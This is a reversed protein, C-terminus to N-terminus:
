MAPFRKSSPECRLISRAPSSFSPSSNKISPPLKGEMTVGLERSARQIMNRVKSSIKLRDLDLRFYSDSPDRMKGDRSRLHSSPWRLLDFDNFRRNSSRIWRKKHFSGELPYGIFILTGPSVYALFDDFLFPEGGSIAEGYGILHEPIYAHNRISDAQLPTIM